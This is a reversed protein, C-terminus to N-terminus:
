KWQWGDGTECTVLGAIVEWHYWNKQGAELENTM